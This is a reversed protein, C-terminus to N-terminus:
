NAADYCADLQTECKFLSFPVQHVIQKCFHKILM